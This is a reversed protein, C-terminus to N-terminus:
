LTAVLAGRSDKEAESILRNDRKGRETGGLIELESAFPTLDTHDSGQIVDMARRYVRVIDRVLTASRDRWPVKLCDVGAEIRAPLEGLWLAPNSKITM